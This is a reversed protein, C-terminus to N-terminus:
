AQPCFGRQSGIAEALAEQTLHYGNMPSGVGISTTIPLGDCYWLALLYSNVSRHRAGGKAAVRIAWPRRLQHRRHLHRRPHGPSAGPATRVIYPALRSGPLQRPAESTETLFPLPIASSFELLPRRVLGLRSSHRSHGRPRQWFPELITESFVLVSLRWLRVLSLASFSESTETGFRVPIAPLVRVLSQASLAESSEPLFPM